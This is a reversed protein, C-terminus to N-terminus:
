ILFHLIKHVIILIFLHFMEEIQHYLFEIIIKLGILIFFVIFVNILNVKRM